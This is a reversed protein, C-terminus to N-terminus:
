RSVKIAVLAETHSHREETLINMAEFCAYHFPLSRIGSLVSRINKLTVKMLFCSSQKQSQKTGQRSPTKGFNGGGM